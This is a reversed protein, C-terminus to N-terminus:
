TETLSEPPCVVGGAPQYSCSLVADYCAAAIRNRRGFQQKRALDGEPEGDAAGRQSESAKPKARLVKGHRPSGAAARISMDSSRARWVACAPNGTGRQAPLTERKRRPRVIEGDRRIRQGSWAPQRLNNRGLAQFEIARNPM